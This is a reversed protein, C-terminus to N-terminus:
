NRGSLRYRSPLLEPQALLLDRVRIRARSLRSKVTGLPVNCIDAIEQYAVGEVDALLLTLRQDAPLLDICQVLFSALEGRLAESEPGPGPHLLATSHDPDEALADLSSAGYRGQRRLWDYCNNTVIRMFWSKFSGGRFGSLARHAKIAADQVADAAADPDNLMRYAINYALGQHEQILRNFAHPEGRQAAKVLAPEDM